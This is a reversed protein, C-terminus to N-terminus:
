DGSKPFVTALMSSFANLQNRREAECFAEMEEATFTILKVMMERLSAVNVSPIKELEEFVVKMEAITELTRPFHPAWISFFKADRASMKQSRLKRKKSSM